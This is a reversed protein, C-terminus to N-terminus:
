STLSDVYLKWNKAEGDVCAKSKEKKKESLLNEREELWLCQEPGLGQM